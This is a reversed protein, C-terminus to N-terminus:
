PVIQNWIRADVGPFRVFHRLNDTAIIPTDGPGAAVLAQAAVIADGDLAEPGATPMGRRRVDAWLEAARLMAESTIPAFELGARLRDLRALGATAGIRLLERRVEYDALEPIIVRVGASVLGAFWRACQLNEPRGKPHAIMGLPGTDLFALDTV